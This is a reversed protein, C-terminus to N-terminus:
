ISNFVSYLTLSSFRSPQSLSRSNSAGSLFNYYPYMDYSLMMSSDTHVTKNWTLLTSTINGKMVKCRYSFFPSCNYALMRKHFFSCPKYHSFINHKTCTMLQLYLLKYHAQWTRYVLDLVDFTSVHIWMLKFNQVKAKQFLEGMKKYVPAHLEGCGGGGEERIERQGQIQGDLKCVYTLCLYTISSRASFM